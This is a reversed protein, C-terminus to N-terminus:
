SAARKFPVLRRIMNRDEATVFYRMTIFGLIILGLVAGLYRNVFFGFAVGSAYVVASIALFRVFWRWEIKIKIFRQMFYVNILTGLVHSVAIAASAGNMGFRPILLVCLGTNVALQVAGIVFGMQVWSTMSLATGVSTFIGGFAFGALLIQLPLTASQYDRGFILTILDKSLLVGVLSIPVIVMATYKMTRNVLDQIGASEGRGWHRAITPGTVIQLATPILPVINSLVSATSYIGVTAADMYRGLLFKDINYFLMYMSNGLVAFVAFYLFMRLIPATQGKAPRNMYRRTAFVSFLSLLVTPIVMGVVAGQLGYGLVVLAVTLVIILVNQYVSVFAYLTMRREGNLFGLTAREVAIFPFAVAVIQLLGSLEPMHFFHQALSPASFHLVLWVLCGNLFCAVVGILLLRGKRPADGGSEAVYKGVAGGIGVGALLVGFTYTTYALTYLGLEEEGMYRALFIRLLFGVFTSIGLSAFSLASDRLFRRVKTAM